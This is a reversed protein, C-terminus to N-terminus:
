RSMRRLMEIQHPKDGDMAVAAQPSYVLGIPRDAGLVRGGIAAAEEISLRGLLLRLPTLWGVLRAMQLPRKRANTIKEWLQPDTDLLDLRSLFLDAGAVELGGAFPVYTRQAGPYDREMVEKTVLIYYFLRDYPRCATALQDVLTATLHPIDASCGIVAEAEPRNQRAWRLGALGNAVLSGEDPLFDIPRITHLAAGDSSDLGVVVVDDVTESGQLAEIVWEIMPRGGIDILAKPKGQSYPYLPDTPGPIGGATIIADM